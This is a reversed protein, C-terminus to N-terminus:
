TVERIAMRECEHMLERLGRETNIYAGEHGLIKVHAPVAEGVYVKESTLFGMTHPNTPDRLGTRGDYLLQDIFRALVYWKNQKMKKLTAAGLYEDPRM